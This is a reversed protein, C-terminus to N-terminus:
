ELAFLNVAYANEVVGGGAAGAVMWEISLMGQWSVTIEIEVRCWGM